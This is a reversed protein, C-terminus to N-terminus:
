MTTFGGARVWFHAPSTCQRVQGGRMRHFVFAFVACAGGTFLARVASEKQVPWVIRGLEARANAIMKSFDAIKRAEEQRKREAEPTSEIAELLGDLAASTEAAAALDMQPSDDMPNLSTAGM